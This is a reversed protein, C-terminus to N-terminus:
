NLIKFLSAYDDTWLPVSNTKGKEESAASSVATRELFETNKTVLVWTSSYVWWNDDTDDHSISATKM